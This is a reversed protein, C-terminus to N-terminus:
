TIPEIWSRDTSRRQCGMAFRKGPPTKELLDSWFLRVQNIGQRNKATIQSAFSSGKPVAEGAVTEDDSGPGILPMQRKYDVLSGETPHPDFM